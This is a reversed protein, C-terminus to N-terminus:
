FRHTYGKFNISIKNGNEDFISSKDTNSYIKGIKTIKLGLLKSTKKIINSKSSSATFLVQYDDGRSIVSLKNIGRKMSIIKKLNKSVPIKNLYLKYSLNQKNILKDLDSILGDSIDISTNAFKFLRNAFKIQIDPLFYKNLFYTNM